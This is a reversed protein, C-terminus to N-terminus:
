RCLEGYNGPRDREEHRESRWFFQCIGACSWVIQCFITENITSRSNGKHGALRCGSAGGLTSRFLRGGFLLAVVACGSVKSFNRLDTKV